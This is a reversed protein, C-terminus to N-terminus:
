RPLIEPLMFAEQIASNKMPIIRVAQATCGIEKLVGGAVVKLGADNGVGLEVGLGLWVGVSIGVVIVVIRSHESMALAISAPPEVQDSKEVDERPADILYM